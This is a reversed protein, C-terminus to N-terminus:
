IWFKVQCHIEQLETVEGGVTLWTCLLFHNAEGTAIIQSKGFFTAFSLRGM